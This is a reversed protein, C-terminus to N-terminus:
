RAARGMNGVYGEGLYQIVEQKTLDGVTAWYWYATNLEERIPVGTHRSLTARTTLSLYVPSAIPNYHPAQGWKRATSNM